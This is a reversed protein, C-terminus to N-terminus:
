ARESKQLQRELYVAVRTATAPALRVLRDVMIADNGVRIRPRGKEVGDVIIRAAQAPDMKLLKEAYTKSRAEAAATIERGTSRALAVANTSISTAVGAPHVVSVRV